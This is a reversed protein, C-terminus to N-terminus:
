INARCLAENKLLCSGCTGCETGDTNPFYCSFAHDLYYNNELADKVMETKTRNVYPAVVEFHASNQGGVKVLNNMHTLWTESNDLYVMGESLNAGIVFQINEGPYLQEAKAAALTMLFTNRYPVYSIAAEAEHTGAGKANKDTLRTNTMGCASLINRFMEEVKLINFSVNCAVDTHRLKDRMIRGSKIEGKRANTGWDFYWLNLRSIETQHKLTELVKQTACTIDLGGSFLSIIRTPKENKFVDYIKHIKVKSDYNRCDINTDILVDAAEGVVPKPGLYAFQYLGLGNHYHSVKNDKIMMASIKGGVKEVEKCVYDFPLYNFLETDVEISIGCKKAIEEAKPITGHVVVISNEEINHYPQSLAKKSEEMEPTLRSFGIIQVQKSMPLKRTRKLISKTISKTTLEYNDFNGSSELADNLLDKYSIRTSYEGFKIVFNTEDGGKVKLMDMVPALNVEVDKPKCNLRVFSCM